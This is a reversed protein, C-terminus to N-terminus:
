KVPMSVCLQGGHYVELVQYPNGDSLTDTKKVVRYKGESVTDPVSLGAKIKNAYKLAIASAKAQCLGLSANRIGTSFGDFVFIIIVSVALIAVLIEMISFGRQKEM